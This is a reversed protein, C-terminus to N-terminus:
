QNNNVKEFTFFSVNLSTIHSALAVCYLRSKLWPSDLQLVTEKQMAGIQVGRVAM